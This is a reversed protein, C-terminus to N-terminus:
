IIYAIQKTKKFIQKDKKFWHRCCSKKYHKLLFQTKTTEDHRIKTMNSMIESKVMNHVM